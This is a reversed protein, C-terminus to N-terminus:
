LDEALWTPTFNGDEDLYGMVPQHRIMARLERASPLRSATILGDKRPRGIHVTSLYAHLAMIDKEHWLYQYKNRNKFSYTYQPEEIQGDVITMEVTQRIRSVMKCVEKTTFATEMNKRVDSYTYAVRKELPYCWTIITDTSRNKHLSKHLLPGHEPHELYFYVLKRSKKRGNEKTRKSTAM